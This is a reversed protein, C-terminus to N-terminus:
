IIKQSRRDSFGEIPWINELYIKRVTGWFGNNKWHWFDCKVGMFIFPINLKSISSVNWQLRYQVHLSDFIFIDM